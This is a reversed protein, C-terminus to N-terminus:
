ELLNDEEVIKSSKDNKRNKYLKKVQKMLEAGTWGAAGCVLALGVNYFAESWIIYGVTTIMTIFALVANYIGVIAGFITGTLHNHDM